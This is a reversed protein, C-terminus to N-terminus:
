IQSMVLVFAHKAFNFNRNIRKIFKMQHEKIEETLSRTLCYYGDALAQEMSQKVRSEVKFKPDGYCYTGNLIHQLQTDLFFEIAKVPLVSVYGELELRTHSNILDKCNYINDDTPEKEESLLLLTILEELTLFDIWVTGGKVKYYGEKDEDKKIEFGQTVKRESIEYDLDFNFKNELFCDSRSLICSFNFVYNLLRAKDEVTLTRYKIKLEELIENTEM